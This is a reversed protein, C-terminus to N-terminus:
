GQHDKVAHNDGPRGVEIGDGLLLWSVLAAALLLALGGHPALLGHLLHLLPLLLAQALAVLLLILLTLSAM